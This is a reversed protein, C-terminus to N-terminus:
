HSHEEHAELQTNVEEHIAMSLPIQVLECFMNYVPPWEKSHSVRLSTGNITKTKILVCLNNM